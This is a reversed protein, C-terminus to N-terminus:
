RVWVCYPEKLRGVAWVDRINSKVRDVHSTMNEKIACVTSCGLQFKIPTDAEEAYENLDITSNSMELSDLIFAYGEGTVPTINEPINNWNLEDSSFQKNITQNKTDKAGGKVSPSIFYIHVNSNRCFGQVYIPKSKYSKILWFTIGVKEIDSIKRSFINEVSEGAHPGMVSLIKKGCRKMNQLKKVNKM